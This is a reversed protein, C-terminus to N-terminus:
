CKLFNKTIIFPTKMALFVAFVDIFLYELKVILLTSLSLPIIINIINMCTARADTKTKTIFQQM